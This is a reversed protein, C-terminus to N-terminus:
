FLVKFIQHINRSFETLFKLIMENLNSKELLTGKKSFLKSIHIFVVKQKLSIM